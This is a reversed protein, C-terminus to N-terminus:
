ANKGYKFIAYLRVSWYLMTRTFKGVNVAKMSELFIRDADKRRVMTNFYTAPLLEPDEVVNNWLEKKLYAECLRDHLVASKSYKGFPPYISWFIRPVSAFDTIFGEEVKIRIDNKGDMYYTFEDLLEYTAGNDLVKVRLEKTFSSM